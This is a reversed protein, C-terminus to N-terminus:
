REICINDLTSTLRIWFGSIGFPPTSKTSVNGREEVVFGDFTYYVVATRKFYGWTVANGERCEYIPTATPVVCEGKANSM